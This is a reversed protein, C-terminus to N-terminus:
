LLYIMLELVIIILLFLTVAATALSVLLVFLIWKLYLILSELDLHQQHYTVCASGSTTMTLWATVPALTPWGYKSAKLRSLKFKCAEFQIRFIKQGIDGCHCAGYTSSPQGSAVQGVSRQGVAM